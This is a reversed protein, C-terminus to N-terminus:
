LATQRVSVGIQHNKPRVICPVASMIRKSDNNWESIVPNDTVNMVWNSDEGNQMVRMAHATWTQPCGVGAPLARQGPLPDPGTYPNAQRFVGWEAGLEDAIRDPVDADAWESCRYDPQTGNLSKTVFASCITVTGDPNTCLPTLGSNLAAKLTAHQAIHTKFRQPAVGPLVVDDYNTNPNGQVAVSRYAGAVAALFSPHTEGYLYHLIASRPDNLTTQALSIAAAQTGTAGYLAHSNHKITPAAESTLHAKVLAMNTQDNQAVALFDYRGSKIATLTNTVSDTGAGHGFSVLGATVMTDVITETYTDSQVFTQDAFNFTLGLTAALATYIGNVPITVGTVVSTGNRTLGFAGANRGGGTSITIVYVANQESDLPTGTVTVWDTSPNSPVVAGTTLEGIVEMTIGTPLKSVDYGLRYDNGRAGKSNILLKTTQRPVTESSTTTSATAPSNQEANFLDMLNDALITPTDGVTVPLTITIGNLYFMVQGTSGATTGGFMVRVYASAAGATAEAVPAYYLTVGDIQLAATLQLFGEYGRDAYTDADDESYIPIIDGEAAIAGPGPNGTCVLKKPIAGISIRGMGYKVEAYYGPVKDDGTFGLIQITSTM